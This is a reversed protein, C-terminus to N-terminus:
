CEGASWWIPLERGKVSTKTEVKVHYKRNVSSVSKFACTCQSPSPSLDVVVGFESLVKALSESELTAYLQYSHPNPTLPVNWVKKLTAKLETPLLGGLAVM